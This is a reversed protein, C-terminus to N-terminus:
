LLLGSKKNKGGARYESPTFGTATKFVSNFSSKSSFGSQYCVQLITMDPRGLLLERAEDIRYQNIFATFNQGLRENLYQSLQHPTVQLLGALNQLNIEFDRYLKDDGMLGALRSQLLSTDVGDLFSREYRKRILERTMMAFLEHFRNNFLFVFIMVMTTMTGSVLVMWPIKYMLWLAVPLVSLLNFCEVLFVIRVGSSISHEHRIQLCLWIFYAQYACFSLGGAFMVLALAGAEPVLLFDGIIDKNWAPDQAQFIVELVLVLLPAILHLSQRGSIMLGPELLSRYYLYNLPGIVYISTYFLFAARPHERPVGYFLLVWNCLIISVVIAVSFLLVNSRGPSRRGSLQEIGTLLTLGGGFLVFASAIHEIHIGNM